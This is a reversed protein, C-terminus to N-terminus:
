RVGLSSKLENFNVEILKWIKDKFSNSDELDIDALLSEATLQDFLEQDKKSSLKARAQALLADVENMNQETFRENELEQEVEALLTNAKLQIPNQVDASIPQPTKWELKTHSFQVSATRIEGRQLQNVSVLSQKKVEVNETKSKESNVVPVKNNTSFYMPTLLVLLGIFGAAIGGWLWPSKSSSSTALEGTIKGWAEDTPQIERQNFKHQLDDKFKDM